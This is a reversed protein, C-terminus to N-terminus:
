KWLTYFDVGPAMPNYYWGKVWTRQVHIVYPQVLWMCLANKYALLNLEKYIEARKKPDTIKMSETILPDMHTKTWNVYNKGRMVAECGKSSYFPQVFDYPDPYDASWGHVSMPLKGKEHDDLFSAWLEGVVNIKFKPNIKRAYVRLMDAAVQRVPNGINYVVTFKFGKKWLEGNYAKKFYYTAKALDQHYIPPVNPDYGLLGKPIVGNPIIGHGFMVQKIFVKYPFLYEFAKRVDLNAFFDPPIGNGDLKGSGIYPNGHPNINWNTLITDISLAPYGMGKTVSIGKVGNVLSFNIIQNLYQPTVAIIDANGKFLDLKRTTFEPVVKIIGYEIKAPGAWYGDFRKFILERGKLWQDLTFPGTGNAVSYLPDKARTPNHYKWWTDATGPWAGQKVAWKKDLISSWSSGHALIALLPPYPHPLNIIVEDGKIEFAKSVLKFADILVEKCKENKPTTTGDVFLDNYSKVGALKAAWNEISDVYSGNIMPFVPEALMWSPGGGRDFILLRELSYVVDEPTLLDGNQFHVGKRIHFIYTKGNNLITGDKASPVNTSLMPLFKTVSTGAYQILNDYIQWIASDSATDYAWAPDLSAIDSTNDVIISNPHPITQAAFAFTGLVFLVMTVIALKKM